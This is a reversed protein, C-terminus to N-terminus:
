PEGKALHSVFHQQGTLADLGGPEQGRLVAKAVRFEFARKPVQKPLLAGSEANLAIMLASRKKLPVHCVDEYGAAPIDARRQAGQKRSLPMGNPSQTAM